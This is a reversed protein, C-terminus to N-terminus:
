LVSEPNDYFGYKLREEPTLKSIEGRCIGMFDFELGEYEKCPNELNWKGICLRIKERILSWEYKQSKRIPVYQSKPRVHCEHNQCQIYPLWTIVDLMMIFKPTKKCWPCPKIILVEKM